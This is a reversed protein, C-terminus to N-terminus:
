MYDDPNYQDYEEYDNDKWKIIRIIYEHITMNWNKADQKIFNMEENTLWFTVKKSGKKNAM